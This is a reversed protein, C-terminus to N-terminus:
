VDEEAETALKSIRDRLNAAREESLAPIQHVTAATTITVTALRYKRLLPGQRTDVHQVRIMPILVRRVIILGFQLDVENEYVEYRWRRWRLLPIVFTKVITIAIFVAIFLWLLSAPWLFINHIFYYGIPIVLYFLSQLAGTIRWVKLASESIRQSPIPRM